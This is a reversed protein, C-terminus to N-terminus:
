KEDLPCGALPIGLPNPTVKGEKDKIGKSCTDKDREHCLVCYHIESLVERPTYRPDTLAFGQRRRLKDDPGVIQEPLKAHPRQIQVLHDYDLNEPFRFVVWGRYEPSHVHAACWRKLADIETALAAKDADSGGARLAEDRDLLSCGLQALAMEGDSGMRAFAAEVYAHDEATATVHAGGKLPTGPAAAASPHKLLPLARRRVFDIKFRFLVDYARTATVLADAEAGVSFLRSVFRSLHPAMAVVLNGRAVAGLSDPVERYQEWQAWLEPESAKVTDVFRDHLERLRQPQHLDAFSFGPIGLATVPATNPAM